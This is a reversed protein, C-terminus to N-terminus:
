LEFNELVSAVAKLKQVSVTRKGIKAKGQKIYELTCMVGQPDLPDCKGIKALKINRMFRHTRGKKLMVPGKETVVQVRKMEGSKPDFIWQGIQIRDGAKIKKSPKYSTSSLAM